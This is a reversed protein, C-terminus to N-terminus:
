LVPSRRSDYYQRPTMIRGEIEMPIDAQGLREMSQFWDDLATLNVEGFVFDCNFYKFKYSRPCQCYSPLYFGTVVM